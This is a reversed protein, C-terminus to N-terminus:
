NLKEKLETWIKQASSLSSTSKISTDINDEIERVKNSGKYLAKTCSGKLVDFLCEFACSAWIIKLLFTKRKPSNSQTWLNKNETVKGEHIHSFSDVNEELDSIVAM